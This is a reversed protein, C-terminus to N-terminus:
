ANKTTNGPNIELLKIILFVINIDKSTIGYQIVLDINWKQISLLLIHEWWKSLLTGAKTITIKFILM